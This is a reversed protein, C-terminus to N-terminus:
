PCTHAALSTDIQTLRDTWTATLSAIGATASSQSATASSSYRAALAQLNSGTLVTTRLGTLTSKYQNCWLSDALVYSIVPWLEGAAPHWVSANLATAPKFTKVLGEAGWELVGAKNYLFYGKADTGYSETNRIATNVALWKVFGDVDFVSKLDARWQAPATTRTTAHLAFYLNKVDSYTGDNDDGEFDSANYLQFSSSPEYLNGSNEGFARKLIPDDIAESMSYLGADVQQTGLILVVRVTASYPAPVGAQRFLAGALRERLGSSDSRLPTLQLKQFGYFRQNKITSFSDEWKDMTFKFPLALSSDEWAKALDSNGRLKMGVHLWTQGDTLVTADLWGSAEVADFSSGSCTAAGSGFAGCRLTLSSALNAWDSASLEVNLTRVTDPFAQATDSSVNGHSSEVWESGHTATAATPTVETSSSCGSLGAGAALLALMTWLDKTRKM